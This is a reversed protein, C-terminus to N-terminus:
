KDRDILAPGATSRVPKRDNWGVTRVCLGPCSRDGFDGRAVVVGGKSIYKALYTSARGTAPLIRAIGCASDLTEWRHRWRQRRVDCLRYARMVAHLHVRGFTTWEVALVSRIGSRGVSQQQAEALRGSWRDFRELAPDPGVDVKFTGTFFWDWPGCADVWAGWVERQYPTGVYFAERETRIGARMRETM